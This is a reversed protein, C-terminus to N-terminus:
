RDSGPTKSSTLRASMSGGIFSVDKPRIGRHDDFRLTRWSQVLIWWAHIRHYVPSNANVVVGDLMSLMM